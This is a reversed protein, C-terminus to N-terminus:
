EGKFYFNEDPMKWGRAEPSDAQLLEFFHELKTRNEYAKVHRINMGEIANKFVPAPLGLELSEAYSAAMDPNENLWIAAEELAISFAEVLEPYTDAITKRVVLGAQPYGGEFGSIKDYEEQFDFLLNYPIGKIDLTSLVPEPMITITSKGSIYTPGVEATGALYILNLDAEPDLGNAKLLSRFILDPVLGQGIMYVDKGKIDEWTTLDESTIMYLNGHTNMSVFEYPVGKNYLKIALNTPILAFDVNESIIESALLDTSNLSEYTLNINEVLEPQEYIMKLMAITTAGEPTVVRLDLPTENVSELPPDTVEAQTTEVEATPIEDSNSCSVGMMLIGVLLLIWLSKKM